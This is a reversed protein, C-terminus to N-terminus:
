GGEGRILGARLANVRQQGKAAATWWEIKKRLKGIEEDKATITNEHRECDNLLREIQERQSRCRDRAARLNFDIGEEKETLAAAKDALHDSHLMWEGSGRKVPQRGGARYDWPWDYRQIEGM